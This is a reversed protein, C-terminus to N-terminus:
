LMGVASSDLAFHKRWKSETLLHQLATLGGAAWATSSGLSCSLEEGEGGALFLLVVCQQRRQRCSCLDTRFSLLFFWKAFFHTFDSPLFNQVQKQWNQKGKFTISLFVKLIKNGAVNVVPLTIHYVSPLSFSSSFFFVFRKSYLVVPNASWSSLKWLSVYIVAVNPIWYDYSFGILPLDLRWQNLFPYFWKLHNLLLLFVLNILLSSTSYKESCGQFSSCTWPCM